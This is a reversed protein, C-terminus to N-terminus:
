LPNCLCLLQAVIIFPAVPSYNISSCILNLNAPRLNQRSIWETMQSSVTEDSYSIDIRSLFM